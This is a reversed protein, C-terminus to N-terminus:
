RVDKPAAFILHKQFEFAQQFRKANRLIIRVRPAGVRPMEIRIRVLRALAVRLLDLALVQRQAGPDFAEHTLRNAKRARGLHMIDDNSQKDIAILKPQLHSAMFHVDTVHGACKYMVRDGHNKNTYPSHYQVDSSRCVPCKLRLLEM